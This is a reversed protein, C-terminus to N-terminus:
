AGKLGKATFDIGKGIRKDQTLRYVVAGSVAQPIMEM